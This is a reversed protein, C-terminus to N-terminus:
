LRRWWQNCWRLVGGFIWWLNGIMGGGMLFEPTNAQVATKTL